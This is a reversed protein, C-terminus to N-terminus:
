GNPRCAFACHPVFHRLWWETRGIDPAHVLADVADGDGEKAAGFDPENVL